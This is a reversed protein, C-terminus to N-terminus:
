EGSKLIQGIKPLWETAPIFEEIVIRYNKKRIKVIDFYEKRGCLLLRILMKKM